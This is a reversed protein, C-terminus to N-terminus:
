GLLIEKIQIFHTELEVHNNTLGVLANSASDQCVLGMTGKGGPGYPPCKVTSTISVGGKLPRITQRNAPNQVTAANLINNWVWPNEGQYCTASCVFPSIEGTALIIQTSISNSGSWVYNTYENVLSALSSSERSPSDLYSSSPIYIQLSATGTSLIYEDWMSIAGDFYGSSSASYEMEFGYGVWAGTPLNDDFSMSLLINKIEDKYEFAM